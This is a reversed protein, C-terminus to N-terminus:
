RQRKYFPTQVVMAPQLKNRVKVEFPTGPECLALPLYALGISKELFPAYSGSTVSGFINDQYAKMQTMDALQARVQQYLRANEIAVGAQAALAQTLRLHDESFLGAEIRNDVYVVGITGGKVRIPVCLISRLGKM